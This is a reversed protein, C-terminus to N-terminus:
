LNITKEDDRILAINFVFYKRTFFNFVFVICTIAIKVFWVNGGIGAYGILSGLSTITLGILAFLAFKLFGKKNRGVNGYEYVFFVSLVYNFAFSVCFGLITATMYISTPTVHPIGTLTKGSFVNFFNGFSERGEIYMIVATIIFDLATASWGVIISKIYEKRARKNKLATFFANM